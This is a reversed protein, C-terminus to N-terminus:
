SVVMGTAGGKGRVEAPLEGLFSKHQSPSYYVERRYKVNNTIIILDQVVVDEYNKSVLDDPLGAKDM